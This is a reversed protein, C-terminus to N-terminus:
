RYLCKRHLCSLSYSNCILFLLSIISGTSDLCVASPGNLTASTSPGNDGTYDGSISSGAITTIINQCNALHLLALLVFLALSGM